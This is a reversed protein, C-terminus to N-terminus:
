VQVYKRTALLTPIIALAIGVVALVLIASIVDGWGIWALAPILPKANQVIIFWYGASLASAAIVVGILGAILSELLFPLIIYLNSAGVLRMIGIERRRTFAAIRITNSIQMAAGLLLFASMIVTGWQIATVARFMPDLVSRLDQVKHVGDLGQAESVVGQYNEPNKLKIRFSEQMGDATRSSLIPSNAYVRQFEKFADEKSEFFVQQVEPNSELTEKITARQADTVGKDEACNGGTSFEACLFVSVEIKDYWRGKVLNVESATLLGVGFLTLSVAVTVIVALTMALNRRLGSWTERLTHRM